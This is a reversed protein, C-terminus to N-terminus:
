RSAASLGTEFAVQERPSLEPPHLSVIGRPGLTVPLAAVVRRVGLEGDLVAFATRRGPSGGLMAAVAAAAASGLAYPGPPWCARVRDDLRALAPPALASSAATGGVRSENWAVVWYGPLGVLTVSIDAASTGAALATLARAAAALAEPATGVLRGRAHGLERAALAMVGHQRPGAFVVPCSTVALTRRLMELAPEGMWEGDPGHRDAVVVVDASTAVGSDSTGIVRTDWGDIPGSQTIDLAKGSAVQAAADVLRITRVAEREALARAVAAGIEGAGLIAVSRM